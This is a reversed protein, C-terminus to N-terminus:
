QWKVPFLNPEAKIILNNNPASPKGNVKPETELTCISANKQRGYCWNCPDKRVMYTEKSSFRLIEHKCNRLGACYQNPNNYDKHYSYARPSDCILYFQQQRTNRSFLFLIFISLVKM